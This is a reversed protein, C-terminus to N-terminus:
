SLSLGPSIALQGSITASGCIANGAFRNAVFYTQGSGDNIIGFEM